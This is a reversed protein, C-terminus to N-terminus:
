VKGPTTAVDRGVVFNETGAPKEGKVTHAYDEAFNRLGNVLNMGGTGATKKLVEPNTLPFNSPSFIDLLQRAAFTVVDEHQKTVGSIETTANHWWQQNLLFAQSMLKFPLEQWGQAAFRRDQPLPEICSEGGDVACRWAYNAFRASKRAAKTALQLRKGPSFALHFAWDSYAEALAAPSLGMTFRAAAAHLSRDINDADVSPISPAPEAIPAPAKAM